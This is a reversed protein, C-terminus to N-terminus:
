MKTNDPDDTLYKLQKKLYVTWQGLVVFSFKPDGKSNKYYNYFRELTMCDIDDFAEM